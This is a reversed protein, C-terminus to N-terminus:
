RGCGCRRIRPGKGNRYWRCCNRCVSNRGSRGSLGRRRDILARVHAEVEEQQQIMQDDHELKLMWIEAHALHNRPQERDDQLMQEALAYMREIHRDQKPKSAGSEALEYWARSLLWVYNYLIDARKKKLKYKLFNQLTDALARKKSKRSEDEEGSAAQWVSIREELLEVVRTVCQYRIESDDLSDEADRGFHKQPHALEDEIREIFANLFSVFGRLMEDPSALRELADLIESSGASLTALTAEDREAATQQELLDRRLMRLRVECAGQLADDKIAQGPDPLGAYGPQGAAAIDAAGCVGRFASHSADLAGLWRLAEAAACPGYFRRLSPKRALVDRLEGALGYFEILAPGLPLGLPDGDRLIQRLWLVAFYESEWRCAWSTPDDPEGWPINMQQFIEELESAIRTKLNPDDSPLVDRVLQPAAAERYPRDCALLAASGLLVALNRERQDPPADDHQRLPSAVAVALNHPPASLSPTQSQMQDFVKAVDGAAALLATRNVGAAKEFTSCAAELAQKSPRKGEGYKTEFEAFARRLEDLAKRDSLSPVALPTESPPQSADAQERCVFQTATVHQQLRARQPGEITEELRRLYQYQSRLFPHVRGGRQRLQGREIRRLEALRQRDDTIRRCREFDAGVQLADLLRFAASTTTADVREIFAGVRDRAAMWNEEQLDGAVAEVLEAYEDMESLEALSQGIAAAIEQPSNAQIACRYRSQQQAEALLDAARQAAEQLSELRQAERELAPRRPPLGTEGDIQLKLLTM